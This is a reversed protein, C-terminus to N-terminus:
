TRPNVFFAKVTLAVGTFFWRCLRWAGWLVLWAVFFIAARALSDLKDGGQWVYAFFVLVSCAYGTNLM